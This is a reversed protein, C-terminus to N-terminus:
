ASLGGGGTAGCGKVCNGGNCNNTVHCDKNTGALSASSSTLVIVSFGGIMTGNNTETLVEFNKFNVKKGQTM